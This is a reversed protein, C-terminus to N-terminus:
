WGQAGPAKGGMQVQLGGEHDNYLLLLDQPEEVTLGCRIELFTDRGM